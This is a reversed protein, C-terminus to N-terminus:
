EREVNMLMETAESYISLLHCLLVARGSCMPVHLVLGEHTMKLWLDRPGEKILGLMFNLSKLSKM